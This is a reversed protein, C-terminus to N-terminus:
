ERRQLSQWASNRFMDMQEPTVPRMRQGTLKPESQAEVSSQQRLAEFLRARRNTVPKSM